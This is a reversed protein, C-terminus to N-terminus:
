KNGFELGLPRTNWKVTCASLHEGILVVVHTSKYCMSLTCDVINCFSGTKPGLLIISSSLYFTQNSLDYLICLPLLSADGINKSFCNEIQQSSIKNLM